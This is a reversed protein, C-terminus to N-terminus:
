HAFFNIATTMAVDIDNAPTTKSKIQIPLRIHVSRWNM